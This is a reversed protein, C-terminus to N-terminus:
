SLWNLLRTRWDQSRLNAYRNMGDVSLHLGNSLLARLGLLPLRPFNDDTTPFVSIGGTLNLLHPTGGELRDHSDPVNGHLWIQAAHLPVRRGSQRVQGVIDLAEPRIRAWRVLHQEQISFNHTHGTDLNAPFCPSTADWTRKEPGSLEIWVVIEYAKIRVQESSVFTIGDHKPIPLRKLISPM